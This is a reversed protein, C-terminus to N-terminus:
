LLFNKGVSAVIDINQSLDSDAINLVRYLQLLSQYLFEVFHTRWVSYFVNIRHSLLNTYM